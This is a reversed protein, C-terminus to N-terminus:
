VRLSHLAPGSVSRIFWPFHGFLLLVPLTSENYEPKLCLLCLLKITLSALVDLFHLQIPLCISDYDSVTYREGLEWHMGEFCQNMSDQDKCRPAIIHMKIIGPIFLAQVIPATFMEAVFIAAVAKILHEGNALSMTFPTVLHIIVTSVVCRLGLVKVSHSAQRGGDDSHIEINTVARCVPPTLINLIAIFLASLGAGYTLFVHRVLLFAGIVILLSIMTTSFRKIKKERKPVGLDNFRVTLPEPPEEADMVLSGRFLYSEDDLASTKNKSLALKSVSLAMLIARQCIETECSIFIRTADYTRKQLDEIQKDLKETSKGRKKLKRRAILANILEHNNLAVTIATIHSDRASFSAGNGGLASTGNKKLYVVAVNELYEKWEDADIADKPPNKIEISFDTATVNREDFEVALKRQYEGFVLLAIVIFMTAVWSVIGRAYLYDADGEACTNKLGFILGDDSKMLRNNTWLEEKWRMTIDSLDFGDDADNIANCSPCPVWENDTCIASGRLLTKVATYGSSSYDSSAYYLFTPIHILATILMIVAVGRLMSFYLGIGIGFDSLEHMSTHLPSYLRTPRSAEGAPAKVCDVSSTIRGGDEKCFRRPLVFHEFYYWAVDLSAKPPQDKKLLGTDENAAANNPAEDSGDGPNYWRYKSLWRAIARGNTMGFPEEDTYTDIEAVGLDSLVKWVADNDKKGSDEPVVFEM